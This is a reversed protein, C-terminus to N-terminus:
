GVFRNGKSLNEVKLLPQLNSLAWCEKFQPDDKSEFSFHSVPKIHDVHWFPGYNDWAMGDRFQKELHAMLDAISYDLLDVISSYNKDQILQNVRNSMLKSVKYTPNLMRKVHRKKEKLPDYNDRKHKRYHEKLRINRNQYWEKNEQYHKKSYEQRRQKIKSLYDPNLLRKKQALRAQTNRCEKCVRELYEKGNIINFRFFEKTHEKSTKCKGCEINV